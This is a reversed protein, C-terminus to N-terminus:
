EFRLSKHGSWTIRTDLLQQLRPGSIGLPGANAELVLDIDKRLTSRLHHEATSDVFFIAAYLNQGPTKMKRVYEQVEEATRDILTGARGGFRVLVKHAASLASTRRSQVITTKLTNNTTMAAYQWRTLLVM